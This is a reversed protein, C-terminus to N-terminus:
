THLHDGAPHDSMTGKLCASKKSVSCFGSAKKSQESVSQIREIVAERLRDAVSRYIHQFGKQIAQQVFLDSLGIEGEISVTQALADQYLVEVDSKAKEVHDDLLAQLRVKHNAVATNSWLNEPLTSDQRSLSVGVTPSISIRKGIPMNGDLRCLGEVQRSSAILRHYVPLSTASM